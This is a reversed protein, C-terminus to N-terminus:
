SSSPTLVAQTHESLCPLFVFFSSFLFSLIFFDTFLFRHIPLSFSSTSPFVLVINRNFPYSFFLLRLLPTNSLFFRAYETNQAFESWLRDASNPLKYVRDDQGLLRHCFQIYYANLQCSPRGEYLRLSEKHAAHLVLAWELNQLRTCNGCWPTLWSRRQDQQRIADQSM